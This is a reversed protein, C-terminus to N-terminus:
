PWGLAKAVTPLHIALITRIPIALERHEEQTHEECRLELYHIWSRITGAMYLRTTTAEPLIFRASENAVGDAIAANYLDFGQQMHQDFLPWWKAHLEPDPVSGQRNTSGKRRLVVSQYGGKVTAYRQSFEQYSFSRHRTIQHAIARSTTIEFVASAMEFPSWHKHDILYRILKTYEPNDQNPSSVRAIRAIKADADPTISELEVKM